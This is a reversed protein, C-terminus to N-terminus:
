EYRLAEIPDLRSAKLAPYWGFFIGTFACVLFSLIIANVTVATPWKLIFSVVSTAAFGLGMGIIGGSISIIVAEILFQNLIDKGRAGVAMRLGIERTRETVSVYMINMIGIGGVLLSIGAISALLVTMLQSTSSFTSILEQQSRVHFDDEQVGTINHSQRLIQEVEKRADEAAEESVASAFISQIYTIALIRKQVTTYPAIIFDDQDHGRADEGREEIVGIVKFPINKFRIMKGVPEEDDDFLNEVVTKGLMCVKAATAVDKATFSEGSALQLKRIYLFDTGVGQINTSWNSAGRIVQGNGSAQPSIAIILTSREKIAEVDDLTLSQRSGAAGRVGGSFGAGPRVNIMNTGMKSIEDQINQKAGQGIALMAIVSAVGIIIGLMTLFTRFRNRSIANLAIKILRTISM